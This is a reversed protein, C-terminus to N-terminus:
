TKPKTTVARFKLKPKYTKASAIGSKEFIILVEFIYKQTRLAFIKQKDSPVDRYGLYAPSMWATGLM